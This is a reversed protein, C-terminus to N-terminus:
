DGVLSQYLNELNLEMLEYYSTEDASIGPLPYEMSALPSIQGNDLEESISKAIATPSGFEYFITDLELAKAYDIAKIISRISPDDMSTLGQLPYQLLGFDRALYEYAYHIVIFHKNELDLQDFKQQYEMELLTLEDVAKFRNKEFEKEYEPLIDSLQSAITNLYIKANSISLWSHPDYTIEDVGQSSGDLLVDIDLLGGKMDKFQYSLVEESKRDSYIIWDGKKPIKLSVEGSNHGMQIRYAQESIVDVTTGQATEEGLDEMIEKGKNILEEQSLSGDDEMLAIRMYDEHTHGFEIPYTGKDLHARGMVQFDGIAAAGTYSILDAKESLVVIELNPLNDRVSDVWKEMNAGNVILLDANELDKMRKPSPEWDHVTANTPMFSRVDIYEGGVTKTLDYIPFFSTYVVLNEDTKVSEKSNCGILTSLMLVTGLLLFSYKKITDLSM